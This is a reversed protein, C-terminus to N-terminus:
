PKSECGPCDGYYANGSYDLEQLGKASTYYGRIAETRTVDLFKRAATGPEAKAVTKVLEVQEADRLQLFNRGYLTGSLDHLSRIGLRAVADPQATELERVSHEEYYAIALARHLPDLQQAASRVGPASYLWLDFWRATESAASPEVDGLLITIMRSVTKFDDASFFQPQYPASSPLVYETESGPPPTWAKGASSLAHVLHDQSSEYLGPPLAIRDAEPRVKSAAFEPVVGSVGALAILEGLRLIWQRRTLDDIRETSDDRTDDQM